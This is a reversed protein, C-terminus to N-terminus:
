KAWAEVKKKLKRHGKAKLLPALSADSLGWSALRRRQEVSAEELAKTLTATARELDNRQTYVCAIDYRVRPDLDPLGEVYALAAEPTLQGRQLRDLLAERPPDNEAKTRFSARRRRPAKGSEEPRPGANGAFLILTAPLLEGELLKTLEESVRKPPDLLLTLLDIALVRAESGAQARKAVREDASGEEADAAWNAHLTALNYRVRYWDPNLERPIM